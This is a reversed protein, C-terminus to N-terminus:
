GRNVRGILQWNGGCQDTGERDSALQANIEVPVRVVLQNDAETGRQEGVTSNTGMRVEVYEKSVDVDPGGRLKVGFAAKAGAPLPNGIDCM